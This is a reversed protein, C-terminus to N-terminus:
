GWVEYIDTDLVTCISMALLVSPVMLGKEIRRYHRECLTPGLISVQQAVGKQTLGYEIRFNRLIQGARAITERNM